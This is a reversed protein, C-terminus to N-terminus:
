KRGRYRPFHSTDTGAEYRHLRAGRLARRNVLSDDAARDGYHELVRTDGGGKRHEDRREAADEGRDQRRGAPPRGREDSRDCARMVDGGGLRASRVCASGVVARGKAIEVRDAPDTRGGIEGAAFGSLDEPRVWGRRGGLGELARWLSQSQNASRVEGHVLRSRRDGATGRVAARLGERREPREVRGDRRARSSPESCTSRRSPQGPASRRATEPSSSTM